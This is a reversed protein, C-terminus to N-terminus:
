SDPMASPHGWRRIRRVGRALRGLVTARRFAGATRRLTERTLREALPDSPFARRYDAALDLAFGSQGDLLAFVWSLLYERPGCGSEALWQPERLYRAEVWGPSKRLTSSLGDIDAGGPVERATTVRLRVAGKVHLDSLWFGSGVMEEHVESFLDEGRYADMLGPEVDVALVRAALHEPLSRLLRLDTGQSDTKLWDITNLGFERAVASLTTAPVRVVQEVEFLESFLYEALSETAPVLTSSCFPARTLYFPVDACAADDTVARDVLVARRYRGRSDRVERRDPDFGVYVSAPAIPDWIRPTEGSAGIDVLVPEVGADRLIAALKRDVRGRRLMSM